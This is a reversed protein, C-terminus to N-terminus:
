KVPTFKTPPTPDEAKLTTEAIFIDSTNADYGHSGYVDRKRVWASAAKKAEDLSDFVGGSQGTGDVVVYFKGTLAKERTRM